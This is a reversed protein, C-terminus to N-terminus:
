LVTIKTSYQTCRNCEIYASLHVERRVDLDRVLGAFYDASFLALVAINEIFDVTNIVRFSFEIHRLADNDSLESGIRSIGHHLGIFLKKLEKGLGPVREQLERGLSAVRKM